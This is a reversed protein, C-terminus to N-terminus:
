DDAFCAQVSVNLFTLPAGPFPYSPQPLPPGASLAILGIV